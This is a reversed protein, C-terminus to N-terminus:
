PADLSTSAPIGRLVFSANERVDANKDRALSRLLALARSEGARVLNGLLVITNDLNITRRTLTQEIFSLTAEYFPALQRTEVAILAEYILLEAYTSADRRGIAERLIRLSKPCNKPRGSSLVCCAALINVVGGKGFCRELAIKEERTWPMGQHANAKLRLLMQALEVDENPM